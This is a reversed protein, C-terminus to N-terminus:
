QSKNNVKISNFDNYNLALLFHIDDDIDVIIAFTKESVKDYYSNLVERKIGSKKLFQNFESIKGTFSILDYSEVNKLDFISNYILPTFVSPRNYINAKNIISKATDIKMKRIINTKYNYEKFILNKFADVKEKSDLWSSNEFRSIQNILNYVSSELDTKDFITLLNPKVIKSKGKPNPIRYLNKGQFLGYKIHKSM